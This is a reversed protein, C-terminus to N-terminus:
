LSVTEKVVQTFTCTIEETEGDGYTIKFVISENLEPNFDNSNSLSIRYYGGDKAEERLLSGEDTSLTSNANKKSWGVATVDPPSGETGLYKVLTESRSLFVTETLGQENKRQNYIYEVPIKVEWSSGEGTLVATKKDFAKEKLVEALNSRKQMVSEYVALEEESMEKWSDLEPYWLCVYLNKGIIGGALIFDSFEKSSDPYEYFCRERALKDTEGYGGYEYFMYYIGDESSLYAQPEKDYVRCLSLDIPFDAAKALNAGNKNLLAVVDGTNLLETDNMSDASENIGGCGACLVLLALVSLVLATKKLNKKKM